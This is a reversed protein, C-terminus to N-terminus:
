TNTNRQGALVAALPDISRVDTGTMPRSRLQPEAKYMKEYSAAFRNWMVLDLSCNYPIGYSNDTTDAKM